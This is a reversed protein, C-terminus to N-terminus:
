AYHKPDSPDEGANRITEECAECGKTYGDGPLCGCKECAEPNVQVNYQSASEDIKSRLAKQWDESRAVWTEIWGRICECAGPNDELFERINSYNEDLARCLRELNDVGSHGEFSYIEEQDLLAEVLMRVPVM